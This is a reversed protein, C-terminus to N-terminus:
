SQEESDHWVDGWVDVLPQAREDDSKLIGAGKLARMCASANAKGRLVRSCCPGVDGLIADAAELHAQQIAEIRDAQRFELTRVAAQLAGLQGCSARLIEVLEQRSVKALREKAWRELVAPHESRTVATLMALSGEQVGRLLHRIPTVSLITAVVRPNDVDKFRLLELVVRRLSEPGFFRTHAGIGSVVAILCRKRDALARAVSATSDSRRISSHSSAAMEELLFDNLNRDAQLMALNIHIVRADPFRNDLVRRVYEAGSGPRARVWTWEHCAVLEVLEKLWQCAPLDLPAIAIEKQEQRAATIARDYIIEVFLLHQKPPLPGALGRAGRRISLWDHLDYHAKDQGRLEYLTHTLFDLGIQTDYEAGTTAAANGIRAAMAAHRMVDKPLPDVCNYPEVATKGSAAVALFASRKKQAFRLCEIVLRDALAHEAAFGLGDRVDGNQLDLFLNNKFFGGAGDKHIDAAIEIATAAIVSCIPKNPDTRKLLAALGRELSVKYDLLRLLWLQRALADGVNPPILVVLDIDSEAGFQTGARYVLSGFAYIGAVEINETVIKAWSALHRRLDGAIKSAGSDIPDVVAARSVRQAIATGSRIPQGIIDERWVDLSGEPKKHHLYEVCVEVAAESVGQEDARRLVGSAQLFEDLKRGHASLQAVLPQQAETIRQVTEKEDLGIKDGGVLDGGATNVTGGHITIGGSQASESPAVKRGTRARKAAARRSHRNM